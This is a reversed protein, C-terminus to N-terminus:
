RCTIPYNRIVQELESGSKQFHYRIFYWISSRYSYYSIQVLENWGRSKKDVENWVGRQLTNMYWRISKGLMSWRLTVSFSTWRAIFEKRVLEIPHRSKRLGECMWSMILNVYSMDSNFNNVNVIIAMLFNTNGPESIRGTIYPEKYHDKLFSRLIYLFLLTIWKSWELKSKVTGTATFSISM